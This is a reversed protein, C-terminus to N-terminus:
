LMCAVNECDILKMNVVGSYPDYLIICYVTLQIPHMCIYAFRSYLKICVPKQFWITFFNLNQLFNTVIWTSHFHSQLCITIVIPIWRGQPCSWRVTSNQKNRGVWWSPWNKSQICPWKASRINSPQSSIKWLNYSSGSSYGVQSNFVFIVTFLTNTDNHSQCFHM